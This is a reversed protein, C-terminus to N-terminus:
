AVSSNVARGAQHPGQGAQYRSLEHIHYLQINILLLTAAARNRSGYDMKIPSNCILCLYDFWSNRQNVM